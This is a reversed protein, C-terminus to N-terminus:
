YQDMLLTLKNDSKSTYVEIGVSQLIFYVSSMNEFIINRYAVLPTIEKPIKGYQGGIALKTPLKKWRQIETKYPKFDPNKDRKIIVNPDADWRENVLNSMLKYTKPYEDQLWIIYKMDPDNLTVVMPKSPMEIKGFRKSFVENWFHGYANNSSIPNVYTNAPKVSVSKLYDM